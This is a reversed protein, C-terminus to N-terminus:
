KRRLEQLTLFTGSSSHQGGRRKERRTRTYVRRGCLFQQSHICCDVNAIVWKEKYARRTIHYCYFIIFIPLQSLYFPSCTPLSFLSSPLPSSPPLLSLSHCLLLCHLFHNCTYFLPLSPLSSPFYMSQGTTANDSAGVNGGDGQLQDEGSSQDKATHDM